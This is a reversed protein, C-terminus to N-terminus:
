ETAWAELLIFRGQIMDRTGSWMAVPSPFLSGWPWNVPVVPSEMLSCAACLSTNLTM